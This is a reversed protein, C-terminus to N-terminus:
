EFIPFYDINWYVMSELCNMKQAMIIEVQSKGVKGHRDRVFLASPFLFILERPTAMM